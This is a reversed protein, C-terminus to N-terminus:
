CLIEAARDWMRPSSAGLLGTRRDGIIYPTGDRRALRGGAENLILAGPAHDWPHSREFLSIDNQGLVLRPYQEAACRPIDVLTLKGEARVAIDARQEASLFYVALAAIPLDAGSERAIIREEDIFAGGGLAAHCMRGTLPDLIWGAQIIGDDVLGIMIGFPPRGAAFNGTGDIPDIIWQLGRGAADLVSPDAAVAEEGIVGAEPLIRLLGEHLRLESEKDAITVYDDAAKEEIEDQALNQYRPLVVEAAVTEMLAAVSRYLAHM